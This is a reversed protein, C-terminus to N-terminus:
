PMLSKKKKLIIKEVTRSFRDDAMERDRLLKSFGELIDLHREYDHCVLILDNGAFCAKECADLMDFNEKVAGMGIDDTIVLGDYGMDTKLIQSCIASSLSAPSEADLSLCKVHTSMIFDVDSEIAAKFPPFDTKEFRERSNPTLPMKQHPDVEIDGIGPFHKACTLVGEAHMADIARRSFRSVQDPNDGFSREGIVKNKPNTLVDVVPALNVNIGLRSLSRATTRYAEYVGKADDGDGYHKNSPFVPFDRTIRNQLGGEQDIMIFPPIKSYSKVSLILEKTQRLSEINESFLIIGGLNWEQLLKIFEQSPFSGKFGFVFLQGLFKSEFDM